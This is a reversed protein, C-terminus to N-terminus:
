TGLMLACKKRSLVETRMTFDKIKTVGFGVRMMFTALYLVLLNIRGRFSEESAKPM